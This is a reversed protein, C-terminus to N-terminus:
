ASEMEVVPLSEPTVSMQGPYWCLPETCAKIAANLVQFAEELVAPIEGDKPLDDAYHENADIEGAYKPVCIVLPLDKPQCGANVCHDILSDIDSFYTDTGHLNLPAVGDWEVRPMALYKRHERSASCKQCYSRNAVVDGCECVMHTSGDYRAMREDNGWFTGNRSVWGTVTKISAAEESDYMVVTKAESM